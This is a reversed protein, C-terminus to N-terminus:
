QKLTSLWITCFEIILIIRYFRIFHKYSGSNNTSDKELIFYASINFSWYIFHCCGNKRKTEMESRYWQQRKFFSTLYFCWFSFFFLHFKVIFISSCCSSDDSQTDFRSCAFFVRTKENDHITKMIGKKPQKPPVYVVTSRVTSESGHFLSSLNKSSCFTFCSEQNKTKTIFNTFRQNASAFDVDDDDSM